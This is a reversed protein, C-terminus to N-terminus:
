SVHLPTRGNNGAVDYPSALGKSFLEQIKALNGQVAYSFVPSCPAVMRLSQIEVKPGVASQISVAFYFMSQFLWSPFRYM